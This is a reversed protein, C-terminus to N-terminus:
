ISAMDEGGLDNSGDLDDTWELCLGGINVGIRTEIMSERSLYTVKM